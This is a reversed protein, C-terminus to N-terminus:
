RSRGSSSPSYFAHTMRAPRSARTQDPEKRHHEYADAENVFGWFERAQSNHALFETPSRPFPARQTMCQAVPNFVKLPKEHCRTCDSRRPNVIDMEIETLYRLEKPRKSVASIAYALAGAGVVTGNIRRVASVLRGVLTGTVNVDVLVLTRSYSLVDGAFTLHEYGECIVDHIRTGDRKARITALRRAIMAMAWGNVAITDFSLDSFCSDLALAVTSLAEESACLKGVNIYTDSHLGSPLEYDCDTEVAGLDFLQARVLDGFDEQTSVLPHEQSLGSTFATV